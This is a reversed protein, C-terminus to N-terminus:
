DEEYSLAKDLPVYAVRFTKRGELWTPERKASLWERIRTFGETLLLKKVEYKLERPVPRVTIGWNEEYVGEEIFLNSTSLSPAQKYFNVEILVFEQSPGKFTGAKSFYFFSLEFKEFQPVPALEASISEAGAPYSLFQPLRSKYKTPIISAM